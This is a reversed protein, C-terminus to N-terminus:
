NFLLNFGFQLSVNNASSIDSLKTLNDLIGYFNIKWIKASVGVGINYYSYDDITYTIKAQLKNSFSKEYFSTLAFQQRLPRFVSYLQAGFANTYFDKLINDYCYKSRKEGFSYKIAANVKSPRWSTYSDENNVIPLQEKLAADLEGWYNRNSDFEFEIGEFTFSGEILNNKINKTHQVFGFDILSGSFQLQPTVHYTFGLDIGAGLNGGLLSNEIYTSEDSIYENNSILGSTRVNLNVNDLYHTYINNNGLRTTFTGSNNTTELNLASSYVKFRGGLTLKDSVKRSIGVHIVGLVDLKFIMESISFSKNLYSTNGENILTLADVPAYGIADLEQYFGFSVYTKKDFRFGASFVEIQTNVKLYDNADIKNLVASIKDNITNNNVSFIESLSFGTSKIESSFGSLLPLGIHFKYDTELGPNLLLTQPLGAFDYLVQKNQAFSNLGILFTFILVIIRM